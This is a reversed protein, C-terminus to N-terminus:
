SGNDRNDVVKENNNRRKFSILAIILMACGILILIGYVIWKLGLNNFFFEYPFVNNSKRLVASIIFYFACAVLVLIESCVKIIPEKIPYSAYPILFIISFQFFMTFRNILSFMNSFTATCRILLFLFFLTLFINYRNRENDNEFNIKDRLIRFYIFVALMVICYFVNTLSISQVFGSSSFYRDYYNFHTIESVLKVVPQMLGMAMLILAIFVLMTPINLNVFKVFYVPYLVMASSHFLVAVTIITIYKLFSLKGGKIIYQIGILFLSFAIFQRLGNFSMSYIGLTSYAFLSLIPNKSHKVVLFYIPIFIILSSVFLFANFNFGLLKCLFILIEFSIEFLDGLKGVSLSNYYDAYTQTDTGITMGRLTFIAIMMMIYLLCIINQKKSTENNVIESNQSKAGIKRTQMLLSAIGGFLLLIIFELM